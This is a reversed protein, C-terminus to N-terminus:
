EDKGERALRAAQAWRIKTKVIGQPVCGTQSEPNRINRNPYGHLQGAVKEKVRSAERSRSAATQRRPVKRHRDSRARRKLKSYGSKATRHHRMKSFSNRRLALGDHVRQRRARSPLAFPLLKRARDAASPAISLRHKRAVSGIQAVTRYWRGRRVGIKQSPEDHAGQLAASAAM